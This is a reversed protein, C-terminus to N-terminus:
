LDRRDQERAAHPTSRRPRRRMKAQAPVSRAGRRRGAPGRGPAGASGGPPPPRWGGGEKVFTFTAVKGADGQRVQATATTGNVKVSRVQLDYDSADDLARKMETACDGGTAKLRDALQKSLIDTCIKDANRTRGAAALDDVVKAVNGQEGTFSSATGSSAAGCPALAPALVAVALLRLHM